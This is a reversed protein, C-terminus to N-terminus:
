TAPIDIQMEKILIISNLINPIKRYITWYNKGNLVMEGKEDSNEKLNM